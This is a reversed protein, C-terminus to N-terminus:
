AYNLWSKTHEWKLDSKDQSLNQPVFLFLPLCSYFVCAENGVKGLQVKVGINGVVEWYGM